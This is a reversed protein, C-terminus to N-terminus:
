GLLWAIYHRAPNLLCAVVFLSGSAIVRTYRHACMAGSTRRVQSRTIGTVACATAAFFGLQLGAVISPALLQQPEPQALSPWRGLNLRAFVVAVFAAFAWMWPLVILGSSLLTPRSRMQKIFAGM